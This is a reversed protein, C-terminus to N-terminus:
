RYHKKGQNLDTGGLHQSIIFTSTIRSECQSGGLHRRIRIPIIVSGQNENARGYIAGLESQAPSAEKFGM